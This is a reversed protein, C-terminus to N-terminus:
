EREGQSPRTLLRPDGGTVAIIARGGPGDSVSLVMDAALVEDLGHTADIVPHEFGMGLGRILWGDYSAAEALDAHTAGARCADVLAAPVRGPGAAGGEYFDVLIGLDGGAPITVGLDAQARLTAGPDDRAARAALECAHAIAEIEAPMKTRRVRAMNLDAPVVEAQPAFRAVARVFSPSYEDVGIRRATGLGEIDSMYGGMIRPNWTSPYLDDWGIHDPRGADWGSLVHTRGTAAVLVCGAGFLRTGATWLRAMGSAYNANDQRGLVLADLGEDAMAAFVRDRRDTALSM